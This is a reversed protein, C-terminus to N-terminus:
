ATLVALDAHMAITVQAVVPPDTAHGDVVVATLTITKKMTVLRNSVSSEEDKTNKEQRKEQKEKERLDTWLTNFM